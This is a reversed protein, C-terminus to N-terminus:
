ELALLHLLWKEEPCASSAAVDRCPSYFIYGNKERASDSQAAMERYQSFPEM